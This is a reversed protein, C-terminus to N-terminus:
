ARTESEGVEVARVCTKSKGCDSQKVGGRAVMIEFESKEMYEMPYNCSTKNSHLSLQQLLLFLTEEVNNYQQRVM